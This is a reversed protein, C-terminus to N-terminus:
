PLAGNVEPRACPNTREAAEPIRSKAGAGDHGRMPVDIACDRAGIARDTGIRSQAGARFEGFAHMDAVEDFGLLGAEALARFRVVEAVQAIRLDTGAHVDAGAGDGAVVIAHVLGGGDNAVPGEDTGIGRQHRRYRDAAFRGDAGARHNGMIRGLALEGNRPAALVANRDPLSRRFFYDPSDALCSWPWRWAAAATWRRSGCRAPPTAGACASATPTPAPSTPM